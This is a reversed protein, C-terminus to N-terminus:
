RQAGADTREYIDLAPAGQVQIKERVRYSSRGTGDLAKTVPDGSQGAAWLAQHLLDPRVTNAWWAADNTLYIAERLPIGARCFIGAPDGTGSATLIGQGAQYHSHFFDAAAATWARRSQSNVQSEKWCIWNEKSPHVLWPAISLLPLVFALKRHRQPLVSVIAGVAFAALAVLAIGYRSNYYTYPWLPPVFIPTSSSHMSWIYFVPALMLFLLPAFAKKRAACVMGTAGLLLLTVGACLYGAGLYYLIALKWDHYGPYGRSGQIAKASYPGNFFDLANGTEWWNHAIWYLPALSALAGFLLFLVWRRKEAFLALWIATFPILFWGDYRTLCMWWSALLALAVFSLRQTARFRLLAFLLVALGALFVVETMPISGLYLVNPNLVFCSLVVAAAAASGYADRAALYFFTGTIVLCMAVPITGALGTHWLWDNGILPLCIVHLMPLWVNGLQNYGPTRSDVMSRSINLHSQADGYYLIYGNRFFWWAALAALVCLLAAAGLAEAARHRQESPLLDASNPL